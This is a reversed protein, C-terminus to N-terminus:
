DRAFIVERNVALWEYLLAALVGLLLGILGGLLTGLARGPRRVLVQSGEPSAVLRMREIYLSTWRQREVNFANATHEVIDRQMDSNALVKQQLAELGMLFGRGTGPRKLLDRAACYYDRKLSAAVLERERTAQELRYDAIQVEAAVLQASPALFREGGRALSVVQRADNAGGGPTREILSRLTAAKDEQQRVLFEGEIQLNRLELERTQQLVCADLLIAEVDVKIATDRVYEALLRLPAERSREKQSLKLRMGVLANKDEFRVGFFKADRETFRFEPRVAEAVREPRAILERIMEAAPQATDYGHELFEVLRIENALASEYRKYQDLTLEPVLFVGESVYRSNFLSLGLGASAGLVALLLVAFRRRWISHALRRLDLEDDWQGPDPAHQNAETM